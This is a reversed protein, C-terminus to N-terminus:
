VCVQRFCPILRSSQRRDRKASSVSMGAIFCAQITVYVSCSLHINAHAVYPSDVSATVTASSPVPVSDTHPSWYSSDDDEAATFSTGSGGSAIAQEDGYQGYDSKDEAYVSGSLGITFSALYNDFSLRGGIYEPAYEYTRTVTGSYVAHAKIEHYDYTGTSTITAKAEVNIWGPNGSSCPTATSGFVTPSGVDHSGTTDDGEPVYTASGSAAWAAHANNPHLLSYTLVLTSVLVIRKAWESYFM